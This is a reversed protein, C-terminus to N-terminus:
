ETTRDITMQLFQKLKGLGNTNNANYDRVFAAKEKEAQSLQKKRKADSLWVQNLLLLNQPIVICLGFVGIMLHTRNVTHRFMVFFNVMWGCAVLRFIVFTITLLISNVKFVMGEPDCDSMHMLRRNHLFVSNVEM